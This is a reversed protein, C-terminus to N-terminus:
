KIRENFTRSGGKKPKTQSANENQLVPMDTRFVPSEGYRIQCKENASELQFHLNFGGNAM